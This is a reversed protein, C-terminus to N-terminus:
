AAACVIAGRISQGERMAKWPMLVEGVKPADVDIEEVAWAQDVGHIIGAECKM